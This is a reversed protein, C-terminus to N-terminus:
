VRLLGSATHDILAPEETLELQGQTQELRRSWISVSDVFSELRRVFCDLDLSELEFKRMLLIEDREADLGIAADHTARGFLNAALLEAFRSRLESARTSLVAYVHIAADREVWELDIVFRNDLLLRCVHEENFALKSLDLRTALRTIFQEHHM